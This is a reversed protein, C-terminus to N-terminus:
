TARGPFQEYGELAVSIERVADKLLAGFESVRDDTFRTTPGSIALAAVVDQNRDLILASVSAAGREREDRSVAYGRARIQELDAALSGAFAQDKGSERLVRAVFDSPRHALFAKGSAGAWLPLRVGIPVVYRVHQPGQKQAVCVRWTGELLYLNVTELTQGRLAELTQDAAEPLSWTVAVARSLRILAPGLCLRGDSRRFLFGSQELTQVLRIVTTKPLESRELLDSLSLAAHAEDFVALLQLARSVSRVSESGPAANIM